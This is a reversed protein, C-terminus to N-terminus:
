TSILYLIRTKWYIEKNGLACIANKRIFKSMERLHRKASSKKSEPVHLMKRKAEDYKLLCVDLLFAQAHDKLEPYFDVATQYMQEHAHFSEALSEISLGGHTASGQRVLNCYFPQHIFVASKIKRVYETLFLVDESSHLGEVFRQSGLMRRSFLKNVVGHRVTPPMDGFRDLVDRQTLRETETVPYRRNDDVNGGENYYEYGCIAMDANNQKLAELMDGYMEPAVWDDPDVFGIYEGQAIELGANRAASVGRNQQHIVKIRKDCEAYEDCIRPCNDPSGDDVLILELDSVTQALISEICKALYPEVKYVPVVISIAPRDTLIRSDGSM